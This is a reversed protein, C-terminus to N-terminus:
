VRGSVTQLERTGIRILSSLTGGKGSTLAQNLTCEAVVTLSSLDTSQESRGANRSPCNRPPSIRSRRSSKSNSSELGISTILSPSKIMYTENTVVVIRNYSSEYYGVKVTDLAIRGDRRAILSLRRLSTRM